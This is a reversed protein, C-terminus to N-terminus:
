YLFELVSTQPPFRSNAKKFLVKPLEPVCYLKLIVQSYENKIYVKYVNKIFYLFTFHGIIRSKDYFYFHTSLYFLFNSTFGGEGYEEDGVYVCVSVCM